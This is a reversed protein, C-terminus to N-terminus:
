RSADDRYSVSAGLKGAGPGEDSNERYHDVLITQTVDTDADLFFTVVTVPEVVRQRGGSSPDRALKRPPSMDAATKQHLLSPGVFPIWVGLVTTGISLALMLISAMFGAVLGRGNTKAAKM